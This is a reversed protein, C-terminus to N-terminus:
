DDSGCGQDKRGPPIFEQKKDDWRAVERSPGILNGDEKGRARHMRWGAMYTVGKVSFEVEAHCEVAGFSMVEKVDKNRAIKGYLALTIGDLITSKGAGTDGTIAFIGTDSLPSVTFDITRKIRLSNLNYIHVRLIRM